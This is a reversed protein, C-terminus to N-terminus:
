DLLGVDSHAGPRRTSSPFPGTRRRMLILVAAGVGGVVLTGTVVLRIWPIAIALVVALALMGLGGVGNVQIHAMNILSATALPLRQPLPGHVPRPRMHFLAVALLLGGAFGPVLIVLLPLM